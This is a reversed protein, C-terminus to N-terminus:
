QAAGTRTGRTRRLSAWGALALLGGAVMTLLWPLSNAPRPATGGFGTAAGGSAAVQSGAADTLNDVELGNSGDLVVITHM